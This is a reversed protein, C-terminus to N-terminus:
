GCFVIVLHLAAPARFFSQPLCLPCTDLWSRLVNAKLLLFLGECGAGTPLSTSRGGINFCCGMRSGHAGFSQTWTASCGKVFGCTRPTSPLCLLQFFRVGAPCTQSGPCPAWLGKGGFHLKCTSCGSGACSRPLIDAPKAIFSRHCAFNEEGPRNKINECHCTFFDTCVPKCHQSASQSCNLGSYPLM